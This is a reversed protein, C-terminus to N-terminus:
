RHFIELVKTKHTEPLFIREWNNEDNFVGYLYPNNLAVIMGDNKIICLKYVRRIDIKEKDSTNKPFVSTLIYQKLLQIFNDSQQAILFDNWSLKFEAM